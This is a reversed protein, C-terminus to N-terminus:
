STFNYMSKQHPPDDNYFIHSIRSNPSYISKLNRGLISNKGGISKTSFIWSYSHSNTRNTVYIYRSGPENPGYKVGNKPLKYVVFWDVNQGQEDKCGAKCSNLCSLTFVFFLLYHFYM